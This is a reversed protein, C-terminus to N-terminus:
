PWYMRRPDACVEQLAEDLTLGAGELRWCDNAHDRAHLLWRGEDAPVLWAIGIDGGRPDINRSCNRSVIRWGRGEREVRPHVYRYRERGALAREIRAAALDVVRGRPVSPRRRRSSLLGGMM